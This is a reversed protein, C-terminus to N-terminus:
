KVKKDDHYFDIEYKNELPGCENEEDRKVLTYGNANLWPNFAEIGYKDVHFYAARLIKVDSYPPLEIPMKSCENILCIIHGLCQETEQLKLQEQRKRGQEEQEERQRRLVEFEEM